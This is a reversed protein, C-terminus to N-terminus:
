VTHQFASVNSQQCLDTYDLCHDEWHDCTTTLAPSCLLCFVLSNSSHHELLSRFTGQVALDFFCDMKLSILGPYESSPSINFSFSWYKLWRIHISSENSFDRISPFISPLLLLPYWLILHSSSMVSATLMFEPLYHPFPIGQTSCDMPECLAPCSQTVSCCCVRSNTLGLSWSLEPLLSLFHLPWNM